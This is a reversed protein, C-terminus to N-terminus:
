GSDRIVEHLVKVLSRPDGTIFTVSRDGFYQAILMIEQSVGLAASVVRSLYKPVRLGEGVVSVATVGKIVEVEKVIGADMLRRLAASARESDEERVVLSISIESVPQVIAVINIGTSAVSAMVEAATGLRGVMGAGKVSVISLNPVSAVAKLPPPGGSESILTGESPSDLSTVRVSIQTQRLPEFTRPHFKKAGLYALEMAEDFSINRIVEADEVFRPDASMIGPVDTYLRVEKADLYKALLTATYDSGGRGLTTVQGDVTGGIFGTVVPVVGENILPTLVKRAKRSSAEHMPRAEGFNSDTVIGAEYGTLPKSIVGKAELAAVMVLSSLREGFSLILDRVKPTVEGLVKMAWSLKTLEAILESAKSYISDKRLNEGDDDVINQLAELYKDSLKSVIEVNRTPDRSLKDLMNTIGKMASVVVVPKVGARLLRSVHEAARSYDSWDKLISGGFKLIILEHEPLESM